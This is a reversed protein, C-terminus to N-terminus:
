NTSKIANVVEQTVTIIRRTNKNKISIANKGESFGNSKRDFAFQNFHSTTIINIISNM